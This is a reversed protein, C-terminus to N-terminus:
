KEFSEVLARIEGRKPRGRKKLQKPLPNQSKAKDIIRDYLLSFYGLSVQNLHTDGRAKAAKVVGLVNSLVQKAGADHGKGM